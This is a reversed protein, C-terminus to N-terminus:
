ETKMKEVTLKSNEIKINVEDGIKLPFTEDRAVETLVYIYFKDYLKKGTRTPHNVFKGKGERM